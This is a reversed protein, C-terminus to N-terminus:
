RALKLELYDGRNMSSLAAVIRSAHPELKKWSAYPLVLVAIRRGILNQQYRLQQDTTVLVDFQTEARALLDGNALQAWGLEFATAVEHKALFSRLPVPTGQDFLVRM